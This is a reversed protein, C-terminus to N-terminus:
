KKLFISKGIESAAFSGTISGTSNVCYYVFEDTVVPEDIYDEAEGFSYGTITYEQPNNSKGFNDDWIVTDGVKLELKVLLGQEALQQYERLYESECSMNLLEVIGSDELFTKALKNFDGITMNPAFDEIVDKLTNKIKKERALLDM